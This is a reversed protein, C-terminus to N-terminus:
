SISDISAIKKLAKVEEPLSLPNDDPMFELLLHESGKFCSLYRKWEDVGDHLSFRSKGKWQFVHLNVTYESIAEAYALNEAESRHQNPQWYMRLSPSSVEKMLTLAGELRNTFTKNHCEFALTVGAKEAIKAAKKAEALLASREEDTLDEYNKNGGWIRLVRTGLAKAAEIYRPLEELSTVGLRFYTGYSSCIIGSEKQLEVIESLRDPDDYPAHVDSGWEICSLGNERCLSILESPSLSRFSISVLGLM